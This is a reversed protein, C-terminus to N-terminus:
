IEGIQGGTEREGADGSYFILLFLMLWPLETEKDLSQVYKKIEQM